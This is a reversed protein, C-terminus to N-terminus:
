FIDTSTYVFNHHKSYLPGQELIDQLFEDKSKIQRFKDKTPGGNLQYYLKKIKKKPEDGFYYFVFVSGGDELEAFFQTSREQGRLSWDWQNSNDEPIEITPEKNVFVSPITIAAGSIGLNRLFNRRKM